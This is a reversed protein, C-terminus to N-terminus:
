MHNLPLVLRLLHVNGLGDGAVIMEGNPSIGCCTPSGDCTFTAICHAEELDWVKIRRDYTTSTARRGDPSLAVFIVRDTLQQLVCLEKGEKLDWLKLTLRESASVARRGDPALAMPTFYYFPERLKSLEQGSELDWLKLPWVDHEDDVDASVARRGNWGIAVDIVWDTHGTLTHLEEGNELDWLKLTKDHSASLARRGDPTLALAEVPGSHGKFTRLEKGTNLEWVKLTKDWSGSVAWQGDPTVAVSTVRGNHGRLTRLEKGTGIDWVKLTADHSASVVVRLVPTMALAAIDDNHGELTHLLQGSELDWVKLTKDPSASVARQGDPTVVVTNVGLSHGQLPHPEHNTNVKWVKLTWDGSASIIRRGDPTTTLAAIYSHHGILTRLERGSELDWEKITRDWSGSVVRRGDPSIAVTTVGKAHGRLTRLKRGSELDWVMLTGDDSASVIRRDDPTVAVSTVRENHGRLTHLEKGTQTDWVTLTKDNSSASVMRRGNPTVSLSRVSKSREKLSRLERRSKLDWMKLTGDWSGSVVLRGDPTVAVASVGKAHGRFTCLERGSNLDWVKLTGDESASVVRQGDPTLALARVHLTHGKLSRLEQGSDIDWVRLTRDTSGSVAWRGDPTVAVAEVEASHGELTLLLDGDPIHLNTKLPDLWPAGRWAKAANLLYNIRTDEFFSLRGVLQGALQTKDKSIVHASLRLGAQVLEIPHRQSHSATLANLDEAYDQILEYVLTKDTKAQLWNFDFLITTLENADSRALHYPLELFARSGDGKWSQNNEPDALDRFYTVLQSHAALRQSESLLYVAGVAERFQSHYLDLLEGRRMLYPRLLRLLAAVNGLPDGPDLLATLEAPSLGHRSVGLCAAFKEVLAAGCPRGERDRFGPDRALRETLIWGFLARADGPLTRIRDTIEEYTGLTRLEELATLVYLPLSSAPKEKLAAIQEPSLRKSYRKLYGEIIAQTDSEDLPKLAEVRADNRSRLVALTQHEKEGEAPSIVSAIIRVGPPLDRPLWNMWHAGDTEDFQNLADFILIVRKKASAEAILKQFHTILDKIDLPLPENNGAAKALEHCLRRLTRRLDTSGTGAGVLHPIVFASHPIHSSNAVLDRCFKALLASKGSGPEGTLVLINPTGDANAFDQMQKLVKDRSGIVYRETREEIFADMQDAEEAFEDPATSGDETFHNALDPDGKLSRLLDDHVREGFRELGTLRKQDKSWQAHYEVVPLGANKISEKLAVLKGANESCEPERYEGAIEEVMEATAQDERFYFFARGRKAADRDLVGYHVEDATISKDKGAPVWGYRGGLICMFRPHCEDIVERCVGLADQDSTVGWRLDVDVLHIRYELLEERLEPFVFRVLHDREAQMDKFTSSIFVKVTTWGSSM